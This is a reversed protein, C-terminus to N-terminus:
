FRSLELELKAVKNKIAEKVPEIIWAMDEGGLEIDCSRRNPQTTLKLSIQYNYQSISDKLEKIQQRLLSIYRHKEDFAKFESETM